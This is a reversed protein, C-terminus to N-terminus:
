ESKEESRFAKSKGGFEDQRKLRVDNYPSKSHWIGNM